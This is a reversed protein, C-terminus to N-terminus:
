KNPQHKRERERERKMQEMRANVYNAVSFKDCLLTFILIHSDWAFRFWYFLQKWRRQHQICITDIKALSTSKKLLFSFVVKIAHKAIVAHRRSGICVFLWQRITIARACMCMSKWQYLPTQQWLSLSCHFHIQERKEGIGNLGIWARMRKSIICIFIDCVCVCSSRSFSLFICLRVSKARAKMSHGISLQLKIKFKPGFVFRVYRLSAHTYTHTHTVHRYNPKM